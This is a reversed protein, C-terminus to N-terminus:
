NKVPQYNMIIEVLGEGECISCDSHDEIKAPCFTIGFSRAKQIQPEIKQEAQPEVRTELYFVWLFIFHITIVIWASRKSSLNIM